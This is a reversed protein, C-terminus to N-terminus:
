RTLSPDRSNELAHHIPRLVTMPQWKEGRKTEASRVYKAARSHRPIIVRENAV